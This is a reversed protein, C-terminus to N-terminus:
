FGMVMMGGSSSKGADDPQGLLLLDGVKLAGEVATQSDNGGLVTVTVDRQTGDEAVITVRSVGQEDTQVALSSVILVDEFSKVYIIASASMGIKLRPDPEEILLDVLYTVVGGGGMGAEQGGAPTTAISRVTAQALYGDIADFSIEALQGVELQLVDIENIPVSVLMQSLNAIQMPSKGSQALTSLKTGREINCVVVQGAIPSTIERKSSADQAQALAAEADEVSLWAQNVQIQAADAQTLAAQYQEWAQLEDVAAAQADLYAQYASDAQANASDRSSIAGNYSIYAADVGRQAASIQLDLDPNDIIFLVQGVAVTDGEKVRLEAVTGDIEPTITVQEVAALAGSSDITENFAGRTVAETPVPAIEITPTLLSRILFFGAIVIVLAVLGIIILKVRKSRKKRTSRTELAKFAELESAAQAADTQVIFSDSAVKPMQPADFGV